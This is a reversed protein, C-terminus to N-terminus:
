RGGTFLVTVRALVYGVYRSGRNYDTGKKHTEFLNMNQINLSV